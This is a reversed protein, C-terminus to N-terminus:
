TGGAEKEFTGDRLFLVLMALIGLAASSRREPAVKLKIELPKGGDNQVSRKFTLVEGRGQVRVDMEGVVVVFLLIVLRGLDQAGSSSCLNNAEESHGSRCPFRCIANDDTQKELLFTLSKLLPYTPLCHLTNHLGTTTPLSRESFSHNIRLTMTANKVGEREYRIAVHGELNLFRSPLHPTHRM